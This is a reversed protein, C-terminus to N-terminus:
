QNVCVVYVILRWNFSSQIGSTDMDDAAVTWRTVGVPYSERFAIEHAFASGNGTGSSSYRGGGSIAIKGSPCDAGASKSADNNFPGSNQVIERGTVGDSECVVTGAQSISQISSGSPCSDSVREQV